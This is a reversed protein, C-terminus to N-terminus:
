PTVSQAASLAGTAATGAGATGARCAVAIAAGAAAGPNWTLFIIIKNNTIAGHHVKSYLFQRRVSM